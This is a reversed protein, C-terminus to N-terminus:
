AGSFSFNFKMPEGVASGTNQNVPEVTAGYISYIDKLAIDNVMYFLTIHHETQPQLNGYGRGTGSFMEHVYLTTNGSELVTNDIHFTIPDDGSNTVVVDLQIYEVEDGAVGALDPETIEGSIKSASKLHVSIPGTQLTQINKLSAEITFNGTNNEVTAGSGGDVALAGRMHEFTQFTIEPEEQEKSEEQKEEKVNDKKPQKEQDKVKTEKADEDTEDSETKNATVTDEETNEKEETQEEGQEEESEEAETELRVVTQDLQRDQMRAIQEAEKMQLDQTEAQGCASVLMTVLVVPVIVTKKM